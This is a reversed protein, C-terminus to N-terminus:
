FEGALRQDLAAGVAEVGYTAEVHRRAREGLVNRLQPDAALRALAAAAASPDGGPALIGGVAEGGKLIDAIGHADSAVVPLGCAMAELPAVPMGEIRSLTIYIDAASLWRRILPPDTVYDSLWTVREAAAVMPAFAERDQGSGILMLRANPHALRRWAELILDLGKRQIDIRGHNVVLLEDPAVGLAQRVAAKDEARWFETDVPNPIDAMREAPYGYTRALREREKASAVVIARCRSLTRRRVRRELPSLTVDGGQFSAFVPLKLRQAMATLADFRAHEYDQVLIADCGEHRLVGAFARSPTRAWQAVARRSPDGDTWGGGSRRGPVLYIPAGTQAHTLREPAKVRESAHVVICRRGASQLGAVYGFLWGGRMREAYDDATLGLPELFEEIVDGWPFIALAPGSLAAM